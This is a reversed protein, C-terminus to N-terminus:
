TLSLSAHSEGRGVGQGWACKFGSVGKKSSFHSDEHDSSLFYIGLQGLGAWVCGGSFPALFSSRWVREWANLVFESFVLPQTYAAKATMLFSSLDHLVPLKEQGLFVAHISTSVNPTM